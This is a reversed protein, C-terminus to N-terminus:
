RRCQVSGLQLGRGPESLDRAAAATVLASGQRAVMRSSFYHAAEVNRKNAHQCSVTSLTKQFYLDISHTQKRVEPIWQYGLLQHSTALISGYLQLSSARGSESGCSSLGSCSSWSRWAKLSYISHLYHISLTYITYLYHGEPLAVVVLVVEDAGPLQAPGHPHHPM